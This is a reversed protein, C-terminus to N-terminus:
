TMLNLPPKYVAIPLQDCQKWIKPFHGTKLEVKVKEEHHHSHIQAAM